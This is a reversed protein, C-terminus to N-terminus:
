KTPNSSWSTHRRARAAGMVRGGHKKIARGRSDQKNASLATLRELAGIAERGAAADARIGVDALTAM